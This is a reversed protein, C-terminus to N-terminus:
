QVTEAGGVPGDNDRLVEDTLSDYLDFYDTDAVRERVPGKGRLRLMSAMDFSSPVPVPVSRVKGVIDPVRQRITEMAGRAQTWGPATMARPRTGGTISYVIANALWVMTATMAGLAVYIAPGVPMGGTVQVILLVFSFPWLLGSLAAVLFASRPTLM